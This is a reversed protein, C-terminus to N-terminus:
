ELMEALAKLEDKLGLNYTNILEESKKFHEKAKKKEKLNLFGESLNFHMVAIDFPDGYRNRQELGREWATVAEKWNGMMARTVAINNESIGILRPHGGRQRLRLAKEFDALAAENNNRQRQIEGLTDFHRALANAMTNSDVEEIKLSGTFERAGKAAEDVMKLKLLMWNWSAYIDCSYASDAGPTGEIAAIANEYLELAKEFEGQLEYILGKTKQIRTLLVGIELNYSPKHVLEKEIFKHSKSIEDLAAKYDGKGCFIKAKLLYIRSEIENGLRHEELIEQNVDIINDILELLKLAEDISYINYAMESAELYACIAANIDGSKEYHRALLAPNLKAMGMDRLIDACWKHIKKSKKLPISDYAVNWLLENVFRYETAESISSHFRRKIFGKTRLRNLLAASKFKDSSSYFDLSDLIRDWFTFGVISSFQLLERESKSLNDITAQLANHVSPPLEMEEPMEPEAYWNSTETDIWIAGLSFLSRLLEIIYLPNGDSHKLAWKSIWNPAKELPRLLVNVMEVQETADLKELNIYEVNKSDGPYFEAAREKFKVECIVIIRGSDIEESQLYQLLELSASDIEHADSIVMILPKEESLKLLAHSLIWKVYNRYTISDKDATEELAFGKDLLMKLVKAPSQSKDNGERKKDLNFFGNIIKEANEESHAQFCGRLARLVPEFPQSDVGGRARGTLILNKEKDVSVNKLFEAILRTKGIGLMGFINVFHPYGEEVVNNYIEILTKLEKKRAVYPIELGQFQFSLNEIQSIRERVIFYGPVPKEKGKVKFEGGYETIFREAILVQTNGSALAKGPECSSEMRSALNVTDGMVTYDRHKGGGVYGALVLGSNIGVRMKLLTGARKEMKVAFKELAEQMKLGARAAREADDGYSIPAGFLAMVCDGIYKDIVGGEHLIVETLMKFAANIIEKVEEPDLKESMKTFGSIDAFLVSVLRREEKHDDKKAFAPGTQVAPPPKAVPADPISARPASPHGFTSDILPASCRDCFKYAMPIESGCTPCTTMNAPSGCMGCYQSGERLLAGCAYCKKPTDNHNM